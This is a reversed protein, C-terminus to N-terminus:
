NRRNWSDVKSRCRPTYSARLLEFHCLLTCYREVSNFNPEWLQVVSALSILKGDRETALRSAVVEEEIHRRKWGM